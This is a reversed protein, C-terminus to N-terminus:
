MLINFYWLLGYLLRTYFISQDGRDIEPILHFTYSLTSPFTFAVPVAVVQLWM